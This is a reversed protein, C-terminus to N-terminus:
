YASFQYTITSEFDTRRYPIKLQELRKLTEDNPHKYKNHKGCSIIAVKPKVMKLFEICSSDKSGHHGLKLVDCTITYKKMIEKEINSPADGMLLFKTNCFELYLVLSKDNENETTESWFTNLNNFKINDKQIPFISNYDYVNDVIFNRKLSDLAGYHDFDYHTIFVSDLKYIRQSRLYPILCQTALDMTLNGGTDILYSKNKYRILTSDGQGVNIFSIKVSFQNEIPLLYFIFTLSSALLIKRYVQKFNIEKFYLFVILFIFYLIFGFSNFSPLNINLFKLNIKDLVNFTFKFVTDYFPFYLGYFSLFAMLFLCKFYSSCTFTFVISLVNFANNSSIIFPFLISVILVKRRIKTITSNDHKLFLYSFELFIGLLLPIYYGPNYILYHNILLFTLYILSKKKLNDFKFGKDNLVLGILFMIGIRFISFRNINFFFFPLFLIFTFIKAQKEYIFYSLFKSIGYLVGTIFFGSTSLLSTIMLKSSIEKIKDEQKGFLLSEAMMKGEDSQYKNIINEQINLHDIPNQFIVEEKYIVLQKYIGNKNLYKEFDFASEVKKMDLNILKGSVKVFDFLRSTDLDYTFYKRGKIKVIAYGSSKKEVFGISNHIIPDSFSLNSQLIGVTLMFVGICLSKKHKKIKFFALYLCFIILCITIFIVDLDTLILGIIYLLLVFLYPM